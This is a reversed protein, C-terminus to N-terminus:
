VIEISTSSIQNNWPVNLLEWLTSPAVRDCRVDAQVLGVRKALECCIESCVWTNDHGSKWPLVFGRIESWGYKLDLQTLGWNWATTVKIEPCEFEVRDAGQKDLGILKVRVGGDKEYSSFCWYRKVGNEDVITRAPDYAEVHSYKGLKGHKFWAGIVIAYGFLGDPKFFAFGIKAVM